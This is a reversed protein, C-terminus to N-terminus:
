EQAEKSHEGRALENPPWVGPSDKYLMGSSGKIGKAKISFPHLFHGEYSHEQMTQSVVRVIVM